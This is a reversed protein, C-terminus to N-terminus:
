VLGRYLWRNLASGKGFSLLQKLVAYCWSGVPLSSVCRKWHSLFHPLLAKLLTLQFSGSSSLQFFCIYVPIKKLLFESGGGWINIKKLVDLNPAELLFIMTSKWWWLSIRFHCMSVFLTTLRGSYDHDLASTRLRPNSLLKPSCSGSAKVVLQGSKPKQSNCNLLMRTVFTLFWQELGM